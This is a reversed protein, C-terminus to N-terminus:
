KGALIQLSAETCAGCLVCLYVRQNLSLTKTTTLQTQLWACSFSLSVPKKPTFLQWKIPEKPNRESKKLKLAKSGSKWASCPVRAERRICDTNPSYTTWTVYYSYVSKWLCSLSLFSNISYTCSYVPIRHLLSRFTPFSTSLLSCFKNLWLHLTVHLLENYYECLCVWQTPRSAPCPQWGFYVM